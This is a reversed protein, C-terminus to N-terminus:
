QRPIEERLERLLGLAGNGNLSFPNLGDQDSYRAVVPRTEPTEAVYGMSWEGFERASAEQYQLLVVDTHRPDKLIRRYAENVARRSGELCQLFYDNTFCLLGTIQDASNRRRASDLISVVDQMQCDPTKRSAYLLRTLSM